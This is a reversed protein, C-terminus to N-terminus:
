GTGCGPPPARSSLSAFRPGICVKRIAFIFGVGDVRLSPDFGEPPRLALRLPPFPRCISPLVLASLVYNMPFRLLKHLPTGSCRVSPGARNGPPILGRKLPFNHYKKNEISMYFYLELSM